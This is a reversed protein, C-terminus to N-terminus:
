LSGAVQAAIPLATKAVNLLTDWWASAEVGCDGSIASSGCIQREVPMAQPPMGTVKHTGSNFNKM